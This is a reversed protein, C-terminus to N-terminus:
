EGAEDMVYPPVSVGVPSKLVQASRASEKIFIPADSLHALVAVPINLARMIPENVMSSINDHAQRIGMVNSHSGLILVPARRVITSALILGSLGVGTGEVVVAPLRGAYAAGSAIAVGEDERTCCVALMDPDQEALVQVGYFVTEPLYVFFDVGARKLADYIVRGGPGNPGLREPVAGSADVSHAPPVV